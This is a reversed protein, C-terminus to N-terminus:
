SREMVAPITLAIPRTSSAGFASAISLAIWVSAGILGPLEPPGSRSVVPCTIPTLVCIVVPGADCPLLPMPNATGTSVTLFTVECIM